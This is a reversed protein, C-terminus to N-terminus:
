RRRSCSRRRATRGPPPHARAAGRRAGRRLRADARVVDGDEGHRAQRGLLPEVREHSRDRRRGIGAEDDRQRSRAGLPVTERGEGRLM